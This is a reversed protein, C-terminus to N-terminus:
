TGTGKGGTEEQRKRFNQNFKEAAAQFMAMPLQMRQEELKKKEEQSKAEAEKVSFPRDPYEGRKAGKPVFGNVLLLSSELAYHIYKGMNWAYQDNLRSENEVRIRFAERYDKVLEAPGDWFDGPPMGMALYHPFVSHFIESYTSPAKKPAPDEGTLGDGM